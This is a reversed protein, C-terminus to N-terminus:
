TQPEWTMVIRARSKLAAQFAEDFSVCVALQAHENPGPNQLTAFCTQAPDYHRGFVQLLVVREAPRKLRADDM